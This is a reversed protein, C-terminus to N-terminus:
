RAGGFRDYKHFHSQAKDIACQLEKINVISARKIQITIQIYNDEEQQKTWYKYGSCDNWAYVVFGRGKIEFSNIDSEMAEYKAETMDLSNTMITECFLRKTGDNDNDVRTNLREVIAEISQRMRSLERVSAATM